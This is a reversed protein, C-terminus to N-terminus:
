EASGEITCLPDASAPVPGTTVTLSAQGTTGAVELMRRVLDEATPRDSEKKEFRGRARWVMDAARLALARDEGSMAESVVQHSKAYTENDIDIFRQAIVSKTLPDNLILSIQPAQMGMVQAIDQGKMGSLHLNVIRLHKGTLRTLKAAGSPKRIGVAKEHQYVAADYPM